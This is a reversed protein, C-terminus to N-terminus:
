ARSLIAVHMQLRLLTFFGSSLTVLSPSQICPTCLRGSLIPPYSDMLYLLDMTGTQKGTGNRETSSHHQDKQCPVPESRRRPPAEEEKSSKRPYPTRLIVQQCLSTLWTFSSGIAASRRPQCADQLSDKRPLIKSQHQRFTETHTHTHPRFPGGYPTCYSYSKVRVTRLRLM